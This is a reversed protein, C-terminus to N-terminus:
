SYLWLVEFNTIIKQPIEWWLQHSLTPSIACKIGNEMTYKYRNAADTPETWADASDPYIFITNPIYRIVYKWKGPEERFGTMSIVVDQIHNKLYENVAVMGGEKYIEALRWGSIKVYNGSISGSKISMHFPVYFPRYPLVEIDSKDSHSGCEWKIYRSLKKGKIEDVMANKYIEETRLDKCANKPDDFIEHYKILDNRIREIISRKFRFTDMDFIASIADKDHHETIPPDVPPENVELYLELQRSDMMHHKHKKPM